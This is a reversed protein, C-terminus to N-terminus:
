LKLKKLESITQKTETIEKPSFGNYIQHQLFCEYFLIEIEIEEKSLKM